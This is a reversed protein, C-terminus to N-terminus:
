VSDNWRIPEMMRASCADFLAERLKVISISKSQWYKRHRFRRAFRFFARALRPSIVHLKFIFLYSVLFSNYLTGVGIVVVRIIFFFIAHEFWMASLNIAQNESHLCENMLKRSLVTIFCNSAAMAHSIRAVGDLLSLRFYIRIDMPGKGVNCNESEVSFWLQFFVEFSTQLARGM